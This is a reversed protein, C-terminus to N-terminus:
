DAEFTFIRDSWSVDTCIANKVINDDVSFVVVAVDDFIKSDNFEYAKELEETTNLILTNGSITYECVVRCPESWYSSMQLEITAPKNCEELYNIFYDKFQKIDM